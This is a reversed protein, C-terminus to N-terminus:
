SFAQSSCGITIRHICCSPNKRAESEGELFLGSKAQADTTSVCDGKVLIVFGFDVAGLKIHSSKNLFLSQSEGNNLHTLILCYM